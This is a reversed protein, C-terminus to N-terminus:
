HPSAGTGSTAKETGHHGLMGTVPVVCETLGTRRGLTLIKTPNSFSSQALVYFIQGKLPAAQSMRPLFSSFSGKGRTAAASDQLETTGEAHGWGQTVRCGAAGDGVEAQPGRAPNEM